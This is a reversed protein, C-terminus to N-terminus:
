LREFACASSGMALMNAVSSQYGPFVNLWTLRLHFWQLQTIVLQLTPPRELTRRSIVIRSSTADSESMIHTRWLLRGKSRKRTEVMKKRRRPLRPRRERLEGLADEESPHPSPLTLISKLILAFWSLRYTSSKSGLVLLRHSVLMEIGNMIM